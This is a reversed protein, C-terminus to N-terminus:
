LTRESRYQQSRLVAVLDQGRGKIEGTVVIQLKQQNLGTTSNYNTQPQSALSSGAGGRLSAAGARAVGSAILLGTGAAIKLAGLTQGGPLLVEALGDAILLKGKKSAYDALVDILGSLAAALVDSGNGLAGGISDGLSGFGNSLTDTLLKANDSETQYARLDKTAKQVEPSLPGYGRERLDQLYERAAQVKANGADFGNFLAGLTGGFSLAVQNTDRIAKGYKALPEGLGATNFGVAKAADLLGDALTGKFSPNIIPKIELHLPLEIPKNAYEGLLRAVDKPLTDGITTPLLGTLKAQTSGIGGVAGKLKDAAQSTRVLDGAFGQFAKSSTSVGNDVLMKLGQTLAASRRDLVEIQSPADGLLKDLATLRSLELRLKAIADFAKQGAKDVGELEAIQKKYSDILKNDAFVAKRTTELERQDTVDKLKIRLAELLGLQVTAGGNQAYFNAQFKKYTENFLTYDKNTGNVTGGLQAVIKQQASLSASVSELQGRFEILEKTGPAYGTKDDANYRFQGTANFGDRIRILNAYQKELDALKQQQAPLSKLAIAKELGQNAAILERAKGTALGLYNGYNDLGQGAAPMAATVKEIIAKLEAQEATTLISKARLQDYRGLLPSVESTLKRTAEAQELYSDYARSNATAVYYTGAALAALAAVALGVPGTALTLGAGLVELAGGLAEFGAIVAPLAAGISGVAILIPGAAAAIGAFGFILKQTGPDLAAFKDALGEIFEGARNAVGSLDFLKDAILGVKSGALTLSDSINEGAIALGGTVKPLKALEDTLTAIFDTSSKGQAQLSKSITESDVTDYLKRLATAVSPAAEIIPRLDQALVKGKASLQGLQVTVRDLESKGGGTTAIANGFALLARKSLDASLGVARLRIDGQIAETFGLGPLKAVERLEKLRNQTDAAAQAIGQLGTVGQEGLQQQTVAQLGRTLSDVKAAAIIAGTALGALPLTVYTTLNGGATKLGEGLRGIGENLPKVARDFAAFSSVLGGNISTSARSAVDSLNGLSGGVNGAAEAALQSASVFKGYGDRIRGSADTIRQASKDVATGIQGMSASAGNAASAAATEIGGIAAVARNFGAENVEAGILVALDGLTTSM